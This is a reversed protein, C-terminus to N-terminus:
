SKSSLNQKHRTVKQPLMKLAIYSLTVAKCPLCSSNDLGSFYEKIMIWHFDLILDHCAKAISASIDHSCNRCSKNFMLNWTLLQVFFNVTDLEMQIEFSLPLNPVQQYLHFRSNVLTSILAQYNSLVPEGLPNIKGLAKPELHRDEAM